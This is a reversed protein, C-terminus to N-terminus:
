FEGAEVQLNFNRAATMAAQSTFDRQALAAKGLLFFYHSDAPCPRFQFPHRTCPGQQLQLNGSLLNKELKVLHWSTRRYVESCSLVGVDTSYNKLKTLFALFQLIHLFSFFVEPTRRFKLQIVHWALSNAPLYFEHWFDVAFVHKQEPINSLNSMWKM